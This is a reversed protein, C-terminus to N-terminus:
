TPLEGSYNGVKSNLPQKVLQCDSCEKVYKSIDQNMSPWFFNVNLLRKRKRRGWTDEVVQVIFINLDYIEQKILFMNGKGKQDILLIFSGRILVIIQVTEYTLNVVNIMVAKKRRVIISLRITVLVKTITRITCESFVIPLSM